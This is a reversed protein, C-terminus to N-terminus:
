HKARETRRGETRRARYCESNDAKNCVRKRGTGRIIRGCRLCQRPPGGGDCLDNFFEFWFYGRWGWIRQISLERDDIRRFEPDRFLASLRSHSVSLELDVDALANPVGEACLRPWLRSKAYTTKGMSLYPRLRSLIAAETIGVKTALDQMRQREAWLDFGGGSRFCQDFPQHWGLNIHLARMESDTESLVVRGSEQDSFRLRGYYETSEAEPSVTPPLGSNPEPWSATVTQKKVNVKTFPAIPGPGQTLRVRAFRVRGNKHVPVEFEAAGPSPILQPGPANIWQLYMQTPLLNDNGAILPMQLGPAFVRNNSDIHIIDIIEFRESQIALLRFKYLVRGIGPASGDGGIKSAIEISQSFEIREKIWPLLYIRDEGNWAQHARSVDRQVDPM